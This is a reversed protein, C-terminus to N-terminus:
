RTRMDLRRVTYQGRARVPQQHVHQGFSLVHQRVGARSRLVYQREHVAPWSLLLHQWVRPQSRLMRRGRVQWLLLQRLVPGAPVAAAAAARSDTTQLFSWKGVM